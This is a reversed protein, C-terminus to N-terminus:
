SDQVDALKLIIHYHKRKELFSFSYKFVFLFTFVVEKRLMEPYTFMGSILFSTEMSPPLLQSSSSTIQFSHDGEETVFHAIQRDLQSYSGPNPVLMLNHAHQLISSNGVM